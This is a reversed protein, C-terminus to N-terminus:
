SQEGNLGKERLLRELKQLCRARTPGISGVPLGLESAIQEYSVDGTGYFLARILPECRGGLRSLSQNVIHQREWEDTDRPNPEALNQFAEDLNAYRNSKRGVRWSERHATTILWSSLKDQERLKGLNQYLKIFVTQAVDECDAATFRYRRPVSEVLRAYRDILAHWCAADGAACGAILTADDRSDRTMKEEADL